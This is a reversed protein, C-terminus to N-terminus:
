NKAYYQARQAAIELLRAMDADGIAVLSKANYRPKQTPIVGYIWYESFGGAWDISRTWYEPAPDVVVGCPALNNILYSRGGDIEVVTSTGKRAIYIAGTKGAIERMMQDQDIAM